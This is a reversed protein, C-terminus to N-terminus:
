SDCCAALAYRPLPLVLLVKAEGAVEVLRRMM